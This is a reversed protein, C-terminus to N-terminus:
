VGPRESCRNSRALGQSATNRISASCTTIRFRSRAHATHEGPEARHEPRPQAAAPHLQQGHTGSRRLPPSGGPERRPGPVDLRGANRLDPPVEARHRPQQTSGARGHEHGSLQHLGSRQGPRGRPGRAGFRTPPFRASRRDDDLAPLARAHGYVCRPAEVREGLGHRDVSRHFRPELGHGRRDVTPDADVAAPGRHERLPERGLDGDRERSRARQLAGPQLQRGRCTHEHSSRLRGDAPNGERRDPHIRNRRRVAGAESVTALLIPSVHLERQTTAHLGSDVDRPEASATSTHPLRPEVCPPQSRRRAHHV